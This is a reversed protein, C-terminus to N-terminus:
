FAAGVRADVEDVIGSLNVSFFYRRAQFIKKFLNPLIKIL